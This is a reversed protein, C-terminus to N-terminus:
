NYQDYEIHSKKFGCTCTYYTEENVGIRIMTLYEKECNLCKKLITYGALDYPSNEIYTTHIQNQIYTGQEILSDEPDGIIIKSSECVTCKFTIVEQTMDKPLLSKCTDCFKVGKISM